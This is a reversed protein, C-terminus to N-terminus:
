SPRGPRRRARRNDSIGAAKLGLALEAVDLDAPRAALEARDLLGPPGHQHHHRRGPHGGTLERLEAIGDLTEQVPM